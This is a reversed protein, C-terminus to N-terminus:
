VGFCPLQRAGKPCQDFDFPRDQHALTEILAQRIPAGHLLDDVGPHLPAIGITRGDIPPERDVIGARFEDIQVWWLGLPPSSLVRYVLDEQM